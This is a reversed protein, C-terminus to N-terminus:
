CRPQIRVLQNESYDRLRDAISIRTDNFSKYNRLSKM